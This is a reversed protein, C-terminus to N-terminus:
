VFMETYRRMEKNHKMPKAYKLLWNLNRDKKQLYTTLVEKTEEIGVKERYFLIDVVTQQTKSRFGM